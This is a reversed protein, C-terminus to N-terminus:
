FSSMQDIFVCFDTNRLRFIAKKRDAWPEDNRRRSGRDTFNREEPFKEPTRVRVVRLRTGM